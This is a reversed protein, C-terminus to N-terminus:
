RGIYLNGCRAAIKRIRLSHFCYWADEALSEGPNNPNFKILGEGPYKYTKAFDQFEKLKKSDKPDSVLNVFYCMVENIHEQLTMEPHQKHWEVWCELTEIKKVMQAQYDSFQQKVEALEKQLELIESSNDLVPTLSAQFLKELFLRVLQNARDFDAVLDLKKEPVNGRNSSFVLFGNCQKETMLLYKTAVNIGDTELVTSASTIVDMMVDRVIVKGFRSEIKERHKKFTNQMWDSHDVQIIDRCYVRSDILVQESQIEVYQLTSTIM